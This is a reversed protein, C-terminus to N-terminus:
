GEMIIFDIAEMANDLQAKLRINEAELAAIREEQTPTPVPLPAEWKSATTFWKDFNAIVEAQSPAGDTIRMYAEDAYYVTGDETEASEINKRLFVDAKSNPLPLYDVASPQSTFCVKETIM